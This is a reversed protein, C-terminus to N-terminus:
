LKFEKLEQECDDLMLCWGTEHWDGLVVRTGTAEATNVLHTKPRHTHGHILLTINNQNFFQHIASPTVDMISMNKQGNNDQSADRMNSAIKRREHLPKKLFEMQWASSRVEGKYKVYELDNTCFNDGHSLGIKQDFYDIFFPDPLITLNSEEAFGQGCLFDRNGHIFFIELGNQTAAKIHQMVDLVFPADDDDGIWAEFLDGLIYLHSCEQAATKLFTFFGQSTVPNKESLHLDSIFGLKM